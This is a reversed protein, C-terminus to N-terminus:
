AKSHRSQFLRVELVPEASRFPAIRQSLERSGDWTLHTAGVTDLRIEIALRAAPAVLRRLSVDLAATRASLDEVARQMDRGRRSSSRRLDRKRRSM